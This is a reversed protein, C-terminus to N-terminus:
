NEIKIILSSSAFKLIIRIYKKTLLNQCGPCKEKGISQIKVNTDDDPMEILKEKHKSAIHYRWNRPNTLKRDCYLCINNSNKISNNM